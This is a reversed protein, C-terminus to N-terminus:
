KLVFVNMEKQVFLQQVGGIDRSIHRMSLNSIFLIHNKRDYALPFFLYHMLVCYCNQSGSSFDRVKDNLTLHPLSVM